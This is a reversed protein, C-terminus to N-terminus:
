FQPSLDSPSKFYKSIQNTAFFDETSKSIFAKYVRQPNILQSKDAYFENLERKTISKKIHICVDARNPRRHKFYQDTSANAAQISPKNTKKKILTNIASKVYEFELLIARSM